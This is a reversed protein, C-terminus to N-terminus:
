INDNMIIKFKFLTNKQKYYYKRNYHCINKIFKKVQRM